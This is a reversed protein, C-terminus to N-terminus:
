LNGYRSLSNSEAVQKWLQQVFRVEQMIEVAWGTEIALNILPGTKTGGATGVHQAYYKVSFIVVRGAFHLIWITEREICYRAAVRKDRSYISLDGRLV